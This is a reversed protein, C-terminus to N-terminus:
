FIMWRDSILECWLNLTKRSEDIVGVSLLPDLYIPMSYYLWAIVYLYGLLRLVLPAKSGRRPPRHRYKVEARAGTTRSDSYVNWFIEVSPEWNFLIRTFEEVTVEVVVVFAQMGFFKIAGGGPGGLVSYEGLFHILGTAYFSFAVLFLGLSASGLKLRLIGQGVMVGISLYPRRLFQHWARGWVRRINYSDFISGFPPPCDEPAFLRCIVLLLCLCLYQLQMVVYILIISAFVGHFRWAWQAESLGSSGKACAPNRSIQRFAVVFIVLHIIIDLLARAIFSSRRRIPTYPPITNAHVHKWGFGRPSVFLILAWKARQLLPLELAPRTQDKYRFLNQADRIILYDLGDFVRALAAVTLFYDKLSVRPPIFYVTYICLVCLLVLFVKNYPRKVLLGLFLFSQGLVEVVERQLLPSLTM